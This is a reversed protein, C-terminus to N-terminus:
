HKLKENMEEVRSKIMAADVDRIELFKKYYDRAKEYEGMARYTEGLQFLANLSQPYLRLQYEFVEIAAAPKGQQNMGVGQFTLMHEPPDVEFGYVASREKYYDLIDQLSGAQFDGPLWHGPFFARLADTFPLPPIFFGSPESIELKFQFGHPKMTKVLSDFRRAYELDGPRENNECEIYYFYNLTDTSHMFEEALPYLKDANEPNMFPNQSITANFLQPRNMLSYLTFVAAAQPGALIRFDKTRFSSDIYPILEKELFQLFFGAGGGEGRGKTAYPLLDRYRNTNAVGIIIVPPIEGTEGLKETVMVADTFYNYLDVYLLYLVPFALQTDEYGKPLHIYILREENLIDSHTTRYAGIIINEGDQQVLNLDTSLKVPDIDMIWIDFSGSRTSTFALMAGDPSWAPGDNHNGETIVLPLSKGGESPMIWLGVAKNEYVGYVLWKGDPSLALYRYFNERHGQIQTKERGDPSIKWITSKRTQRDMLAILIWEGDVTWGGPLPLMGEQGFIRTFTNKNIDAVWLSRPSGGIFAIRSADPSWCPLGGNEIPISDPVFRIPDGGTAPIMQISNGTDADFVIWRGDPSWRPHEAIGKFIQAAEGGESSMRYLGNKDLTDYMDTHQFVIATGDPSWTAFGEQAPDDTLLTVAFRDQGLTVAACLVIAALTSVFNSM